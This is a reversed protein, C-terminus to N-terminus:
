IEEVEVVHYTGNNLTYYKKTVKNIKGEYLRTQKIVKVSNTGDPADDDKLQYSSKIKLEKKGVEKSKFGLSLDKPYVYKYTSRDFYPKGVERVGGTYNIVVITDFDKHYGAGIGIHTLEERFLHERHLRTEMGDDVLLSVIVEVGRKAGLDINECSAVEWECYKDIRESVNKGDKSDHTYLGIPGIDDAHDQAARALKENFTLTPVPRQKKLMNIAEQYANPGEYTELPVSNPRYLINNNDKFYELYQKLIPIYSTPDARIRNSETLVSQILEEYDVTNNSM